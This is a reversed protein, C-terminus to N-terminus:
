HIFYVFHLWLFPAHTLQAFFAVFHIETGSSLPHLWNISLQIDQAFDNYWSHMPYFCINDRSVLNHCKLSLDKLQLDTFIQFIVMELWSVVGKLWIRRATDQNHWWLYKDHILDTKKFHSSSRLHLSTESWLINAPYCVRSECFLALSFM